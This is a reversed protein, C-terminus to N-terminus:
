NQILAPQFSSTNLFLYAHLVNILFELTSLKSFVKKHVFQHMCFLLKGSIQFKKAHEQKEFAKKQKKNQTVISHMWDTLIELAYTANHVSCTLNFFHKLFIDPISWPHFLFYGIRPYKKPKSVCQNKFISGHSGLVVNPTLGDSLHIKKVLMHLLM